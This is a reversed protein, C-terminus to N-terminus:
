PNEREMVISNEHEQGDLFIRGHLRKENFFGLNFVFEENQKVSIILEKTTIKANYWVGGSKIGREPLNGYEYFVAAADSDLYEVRLRAELGNQWKGKWAGLFAKIKPNPDPIGDSKWFVVKRFNSELPTFSGEMRYGNIKSVVVRSNAPTNFILDVGGNKSLILTATVTQMKKGTVGYNAAVEFIAREDNSANEAIKTIELTRTEKGMEIIGIWKGTLWDAQKQLVSQSQAMVPFICFILLSAMALLLLKKM